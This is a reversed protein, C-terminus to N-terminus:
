GPHAVLGIVILVMAIEVRLIIFFPSIFCRDLRQM